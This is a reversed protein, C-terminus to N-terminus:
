VGVLQELGFARISQGALSLWAHDRNRSRQGHLSFWSDSLLVPLDSNSSAAIQGTLILWFWSHPIRPVHTSERTLFSARLRLWFWSNCIVGYGKMDAM